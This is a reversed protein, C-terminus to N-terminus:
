LEEYIYDVNIHNQNRAVSSLDCYPINHIKFDIIKEIM